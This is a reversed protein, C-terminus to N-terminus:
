FKCIYYVLLTLISEDHKQSTKLQIESQEIQEFIIMLHPTSFNKMSSFIDKYYYESGGLNKVIQQRSLGTSALEKVVWMRRFFLFVMPLIAALSEGQELLKLCIQLSKKLNQAGLENQLNFINIEKSFGTIESIMNQSIKKGAPLFNVIKEIEVKLRLLNYGTNEVLFSISNEDTGINSEKFKSKVWSYVEKGYLTRCNVSTSHKKLENHFKTKGWSESTLVLVTSPQPNKIYKLFSDKDEISLKDFQKVVIMKKDSLMPYSLCSNLIESLSTETGYYIHFNFDKAAPDSFVKTEIGSVFLDHFYTEPGFFIYLCELDSKKLYSSFSTISIESM